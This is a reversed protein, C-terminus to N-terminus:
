ELENRHEYSWMLNNFIDYNDSICARIRSVDDDLDSYFGVYSVYDVRNGFLKWTIYDGDDFEIKLKGSLSMSLTVARGLYGSMIEGCRDILSRAEDKTM